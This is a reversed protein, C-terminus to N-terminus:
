GPSAAAFLVESGVPVYGAALVARLSAANGPSVQAWLPEEAPVLYRAAEALARGLGTGREAPPVEFATEWRGAFGRGVLIMTQPVAAVAYARIDTRYRHARTLRTHEGDLPVLDMAPRGSQGPAVLVVDLAGAPRRLVDTLAGLFPPKMASEVDDHDLNARVWDASVDAAVVHHATFALVGATPGPPQPYVEVFGDAEPYRGQAVGALLLSVPHTM